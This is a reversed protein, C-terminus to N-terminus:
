SELVQGDVDIGQRPHDQHFSKQVQGDGIEDQCRCHCRKIDGQLFRGFDAPARGQAGQEPHGQGHQPRRDQGGEDQRQHAAQGGKGHGRHDPHGSADIHQGGVDVLGDGGSKGRIEALRRGDAHTHQGGRDGKDIDIAVQGRFAFFVDGDGAASVPGGDDFELPGFIGQEANHADQGHDEDYQRHQHQKVGGQHGIGHDGAGPGKGHHAPFVPDLHDIVGYRQQGQFVTHEEANHARTEPHCQGNEDGIDDDLDPGVCGANQLAEGKQGEGKGPDDDTDPEHPKKHASGQVGGDPRQEDAIDGGIQGVPHPGQGTGKDLDVAM